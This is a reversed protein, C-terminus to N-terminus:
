SPESARDMAAHALFSPTAQASREADVAHTHQLVQAGTTQIRLSYALPVQDLLAAVAKLLAPAVLDEVDPTLSSVFRIDM